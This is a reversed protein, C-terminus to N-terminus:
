DQTLYNSKMIQLMRQSVYGQQDSVGSVQCDDPPLIVKRVTWSRSIPLDGRLHCEYFNLPKTTPRQLHATLDNWKPENMQLKKIDISRQRPLDVCSRDPSFLHFSSRDTSITQLFSGCQWSVHACFIFSWWKRQFPLNSTWDLEVSVHHWRM